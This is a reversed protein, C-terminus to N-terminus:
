WYVKKNIEIPKPDNTTLTVHIVMSHQPLFVPKDLKPKVNAAVCAEYFMAETICACTLASLGYPHTWFPRETMDSM